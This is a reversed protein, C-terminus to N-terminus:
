LEFIDVKTQKSPDIDNFKCAERFSKLPDLIIKEFMKHYDPKFIKRFEEPYQGPLYAICDINYANNPNLYLFRVKNGVLIENYKNSLNLGSKGILQNYYTCAKAIGTTGVEMTLFGTSDRGTNYGKWFSIEDVDFQTFKNYVDEIYKIYDAEKWNKSIVGDYIDALFTKMEKPVQNKKLEIGSYKTKSVPDGEDFIKHTAYRKKKEYIGVDSMYELEYTLVNEQNTKCYDHVLNRVFPNVKEDVFKSVLKWFKDRYEQTWDKIQDPLNYESKMYDSVCQLNVFQSNHIYIDNAYFAHSNNAVELDYVYETTTGLDEIKKITGIYDKNEYKNYISVYDDIKLDKACINEFFHDRNYKMCVHDSTVVIYDHKYIDICNNKSIKTEVYLKILHKNTKHRSIWIVDTFANNLTQVQINKTEIVEYTGNNHIEAGNEVLQNFLNEIKEIKVKNMNLIYLTPM